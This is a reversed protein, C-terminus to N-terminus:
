VAAGILLVQKVTRLYASLRGQATAAGVNLKFFDIQIFPQGQRLNRACVRPLRSENLGKIGDSM